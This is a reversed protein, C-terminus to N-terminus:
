KWNIRIDETFKKIEGIVLEEDLVGSAYMKLLGSILTNKTVPPYDNTENM